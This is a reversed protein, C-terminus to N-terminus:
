CIVQIVAFRPEVNAATQQKKLFIASFFGISM